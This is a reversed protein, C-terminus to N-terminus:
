GERIEVTQIRVDQTPKSRENPNGPSATVPVAAIRDLVDYGDTVQGFIVYQKPLPANQHMIFFQSGASDPAQTRAM